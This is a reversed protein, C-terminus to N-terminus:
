SGYYQKQGPQLYPKDGLMHRVHPGLIPFTKVPIIANGAEGFQKMATKTNGELLAAVGSFVNSILQTSPTSALSAVLSKNQDNPDFMQNLMGLGPIMMGEVFKIKEPTPMNNWTPMSKGALVYGFMNSLYSLPMMMTMYSLAWGLKAKAGMANKFGSLLTRDIFTFPYGKFQTISKWIEGFPHGPPLGQSLFAKSFANPSLVANECAVDFFSYVKCYLNNRLDHASMGPNDGYIDKIESDTLKDVNDTAFLKNDETKTRLVNWEKDTLGFKDFQTKLFDNLGGYETDSAKGLARAMLTITALRNGRDLAEMQTIRYFGTTFKELGETVNTADAYRGMYGMHSDIMTKFLDALHKKDEGRPLKDFLGQLYQGYSEFAGVGFQRMYSAGQVIDTVSLLAVKVTRAMSTIARFNSAFTALKPSVALSNEGTVQQFILDTNRYWVGGKHKNGTEEDYKDQVHKLDLYMNYPSAGYVRALGIKNASSHIDNDIISKYDRSRSYRQRYRMAAEEDKFKFFMRSKRQIAERDNAVLSRTFIQSKGTTINNFIRGLIENVKADDLGKDPTLADTHSFTEDMDLEKKIADIWIGKSQAVTYKQKSRAADVVNRGGRLLLSADHDMKFSRDRNMDSLLMANSKVMEQNRYDIYDQMKPALRKAMDSASKGSMARSIDSSNEIRQIFSVEEPSMPNISRKSLQDRMARQAAEINGDALNRTGSKQMGYIRAMTQRMNAKGAKIKNSLTDFKITSNAAVGCKEFLTQITENNVEQIAMKIALAGGQPKTRAVQFVRNVYDNIEDADMASLTLKADNICDKVSM